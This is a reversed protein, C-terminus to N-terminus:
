LPLGVRRMLDRFRPDSRLSDYHPEVKLYQMQLDHAAYARELEQFAGDKNGLGTYLIALEAPSVYERTTKLKNLIALAKERQGSVAYTYGLYIQESTTEGELSSFKQYEVIAEPYMGKMAYCVGLFYHAFSFDQQLEIVHQLQRIAEDFRHANYLAAAESSKAQM